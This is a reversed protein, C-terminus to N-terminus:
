LQLPLCQVTKQQNARVLIGLVRARMKVARESRTLKLAVHRVTIGTSALERLRETEVSSWHIKRRM